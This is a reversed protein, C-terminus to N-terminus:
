NELIQDSHIKSRVEDIIREVRGDNLIFTTRLVGDYERGFLFKPGWVGFKKIIELNPDSILDFPLKFKKIFNQHKRISDPSVGYLRFGAKLLAKYNDRLNCAEDTCTPTNDQPYFYLIVKGSSLDSSSIITGDQLMSQFSPIASGEKIKTM